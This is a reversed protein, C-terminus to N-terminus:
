QGMHMHDPPTSCVQKYIDTMLNSTPSLRTWCIFLLWEMGKLIVHSRINIHWDTSPVCDENGPRRWSWDKIVATHLYPPPSRTMDPSTPYFSVRLATGSLSDQLEKQITQQPPHLGFCECLLMLVAWQAVFVLLYLGDISTHLLYLFYSNNSLSQITIVTCWLPM